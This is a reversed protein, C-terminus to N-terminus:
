GVMELFINGIHASYDGWRGLFVSFLLFTLQMCIVYLLCDLVLAAGRAGWLSKFRPFRCRYYSELFVKQQFFLFLLFLPIYFAMLTVASWNTIFMHQFPDEATKMEAATPNVFICVYVVLAVVILRSIGDQVRAQLYAKIM